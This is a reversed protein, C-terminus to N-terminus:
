SHKIDQHKPNSFLRYTHKHYELNLEIWNLLYKNRTEAYCSFNNQWWWFYMVYIFMLWIIYIPLLCLWVYWMSCWVDRVCRFIKDNWTSRCKLRKTKQGRSWQQLTLCNLMIACKLTQCSCKRRKPAQNLSNAPLIRFARALKCRREVIKKLELSFLPRWVFFM